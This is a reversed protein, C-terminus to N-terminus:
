PANEEQLVMRGASGPVYTMPGQPIRSAVQLIGADMFEWVVQFPRKGAVWKEVIVAGHGPLVTFVVQRPDDPKQLAAARAFASTIGRAQAETACSVLYHYYPSDLPVYEVRSPDFAAIGRHGHLKSRVVPVNASIGWSPDLTVRPLHDDLAMMEVSESSPPDNRKGAVHRVLAGMGDPRVGVIVALDNSTVQGKDIPRASGTVTAVLAGLTPDWTAFCGESYQTAVAENVAPVQALDAIRVMETFFNRQGLERGAVSMAQPTDLSAWVAHPIVEGVVEHQTVEHTSLTTVMRLVIDEYFAEIDEAPSKPYAGVLDFHYAVQPREDGVVLLVHISKVQAQVLRELALIPGGRRGQEFLVRYAQPALGPFAYDQPDPPAKKLIEEFRALLRQFQAPPIKVLSYTTPTHSLKFKRRAFFLPAERWGLPEGFRATTLIVDTDENPVDQVHHGRWRFHRLIGEVIDKLAAADPGPVFAVHISKLWPHTPNALMSETSQIKM